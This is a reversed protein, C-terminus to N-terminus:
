MFRSWYTGEGRSSHVASEVEGSSAALDPSSGSDKEVRQGSRWMAVLARIPRLLSIVDQMTMTRTGSPTCILRRDVEASILVGKPLALSYTFHM